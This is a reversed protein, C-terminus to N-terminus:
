NGTGSDKRWPGWELRGTRDVNNSAREKDRKKGYYEMHEIKMDGSRFEDHTGPRAKSAAKSAEEECRGKTTSL